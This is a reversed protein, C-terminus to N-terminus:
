SSQILVVEYIHFILISIKAKPTDSNVKPRGDRIFMSFQSLVVSELQENTLVLQGSVEKWTTFVGQRVSGLLWKQRETSPQSSTHRACETNRRLRRPQASAVVLM